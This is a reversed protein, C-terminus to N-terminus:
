RSCRITVFLFTMIFEWQIHVNSTSSPSFNEGDKRFKYQASIQEAKFCAMNNNIGDLSIVLIHSIANKNSNKLIYISIFDFNNLDQNGIKDKSGWNTNTDQRLSPCNKVIMGIGTSGPPADVVTLLLLGYSTVCVSHWTSITDGQPSQNCIGSLFTVIKLRIRLM